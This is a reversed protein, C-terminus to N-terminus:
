EQPISLAKFALLSLSAIILRRVLNSNGVIVQWSSIFPLAFIHLFEQKSGGNPPSRYCVHNM